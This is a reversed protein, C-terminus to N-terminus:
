KSKLESKGAEMAAPGINIWHAHAHERYWKCSLISLIICTHVQFLEDKSFQLLTLPQSFFISQHTKQRGM